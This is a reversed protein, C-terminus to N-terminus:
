VHTWECECGLILHGYYTNLCPLGTETQGASVISTRPSDCSSLVRYQIIQLLCVSEFYQDFSEVVVVCYLQLRVVPFM